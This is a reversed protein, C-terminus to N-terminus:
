SCAPYCVVNAHEVSARRTFFQECVLCRRVDQGVVAFVKGIQDTHIFGVDRRTQDTAIVDILLSDRLYVQAGAVLRSFCPVFPRM